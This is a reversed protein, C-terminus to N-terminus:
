SQHMRQLNRQAEDRSEYIHPAENREKLANGLKARLFTSTTYRTVGSYFRDVLRKVMDTYEEIIDPNISFNDYNVITYVRHGLPALIRTVKNEVEKVDQMTKISFGEFNVFFLNQGPDYSLREDLSLPLLDEKLGMIEPQFIRADMTGLHDSVIPRFDMQQLIDRELDVGPAIEILEMGQRTLRFVCRETIYFVPQNQQM